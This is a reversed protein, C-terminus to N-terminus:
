RFGGSPTATQGGQGAPVWKGGRLELREGTKPNVATKPAGGSGGGARGKAPPRNGLRTERRDSVDARRGAVRTRERRDEILSDTNRDARENDAEYNEIMAETRAERDLAALQEAEKMALMQLKRIGDPCPHTPPVTKSIDIGLPM